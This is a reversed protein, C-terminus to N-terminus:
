SWGTKVKSIYHYALKFIFIFVLGVVFGIVVSYSTRLLSIAVPIHLHTFTNVISLFGIVGPVLLIIGWKRNIGMVYLALIFFPFGILSEKTRPRVILTDELWQRFTLEINSVPGFNGTRSIYFLGVVAIVVFLLLHSYKVEKNVLTVTKSLAAKMGHGSLQNMEAVVYLLVAMIPIIYVLKVGKFVEYGTIFGNGNLLGIVIAIGVFSISIAKVYKVFIDRIKLSGNASKIVAYIPTIVAIILAFAQLFLIRNLVFYAIAILGMFITAAIRLKNNKLLESTLYTYLIGALLVLATVWAPVVIVDFLKPAGVKYYSPMKEQVGTLFDTAVKLNDEPNGSTTNIHYFISKINREKVARAARNITESPTLDTEKNIDISHTRITKYDTNRAIADEGKLKNGEISYFYYGAESLQQVWKSSEPQGFGIVEEESGLLGSVHDDKLALLQQVIMNNVVENDANETRFIHKLEHKNITEVALPDYGIPTDLQYYGNEKSLFYFREGAIEVEEPQLVEKLLQQYATEEPVTIYYGTKNLDIANEYESFRLADALENEEYISLVKQTELDELSVLDINVTTLGADKLSSLVEDVTLDSEDAVAMVEEYPIVTEYHDNTIEANWRNIIGPSSIILLLLIIWWLWKQKVM